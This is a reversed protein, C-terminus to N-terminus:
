ENSGMGAIAPVPKLMRGLEAFFAKRYSIDGANLTHGAGPYVKLVLNNKGAKEFEAQLSLASEVPNSRDKEGIGVLLPIDLALLDPMPDYDLVDSWYRYPSGCWSKDISRPDASITPWAQTIDCSIDGKEHLTSLLKRMSYGGDGILALHTIAPMRAAIRIAVQGGESVGVLVVNKPKHDSRKLQAAIFESYDAVWQGPNNALHFDRSCGFMGTSRDGTFRKNLVFIRAPEALGNIYGPMVYKWSPCGFGGYFFVFTDPETRNGHDFSYYLASGGDSFSFSSAVPADGIYVHALMQMKTCGSLLGIAIIVPIWASIRM